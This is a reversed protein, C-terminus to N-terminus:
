STGYTCVDLTSSPSTIVIRGSPSSKRANVLSLLLHLAARDECSSLPYYDLARQANFDADAWSNDLRSPDFDQARVAHCAEGLGEYIRAAERDFGLATIADCDQSDLASAWKTDTSGRTSVWTVVVRASDTGFRDPPPSGVVDHRCGIVDDCNDSRQLGTVVVAGIGVLLGVVIATVLKARSKHEHPM